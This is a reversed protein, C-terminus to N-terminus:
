WTNVRRSSFNHMPDYLNRRGKWTGTRGGNLTAHRLDFSNPGETVLIKMMLPATRTTSDRNVTEFSIRPRPSKTMALSLIALYIPTLLRRLPYEILGSTPRLLLHRHHLDAPPLLRLLLRSPPIIVIM